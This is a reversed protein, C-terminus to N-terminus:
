ILYKRRAAKATNEKAWLPRLNTLSWCLRVQEPDELDFLSVPTIHDIHIEGAMFREWTMGRTFQREIHLKLDDLSYGLFELLARPGRGKKSKLGGRLRTNICGFRRHKRMSSRLRQKLNFVPDNRYRHRFEDTPSMRPRPLPPLPKIEEFEKAAQRVLRALRTTRVGWQEFTGAFGNRVAARYSRM